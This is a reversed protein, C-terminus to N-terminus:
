KTVKVRIDAPTPPPDKCTISLRVTRLVLGPVELPGQWVILYFKKFRVGLFYKEVNVDLSTNTKYMKFIIGKPYVDVVWECTKDGACDALSAYSSFVFTSAFYAPLLSYNEVTLLTSHTDATYLRPTFSLHGDEEEM